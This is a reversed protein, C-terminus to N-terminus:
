KTLSCKTSWGQKHNHHLSDCLKEPEHPRFAAQFMIVTM